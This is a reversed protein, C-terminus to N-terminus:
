QASRRGRMKRCPAGDRAAIRAKQWEVIESEIWGVAKKGLPIPKPFQGAAIKAYMSSRPLGTVAQVRPRRLINEAM